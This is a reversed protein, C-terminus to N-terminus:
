LTQVGGQSYPPFFALAGFFCRPLCIQSCGQQGFHLADHMKRAPCDYPSPSPGSDGLLGDSCQSFAQAKVISANAPVMTAVGDSWMCSSGSADENYACCWSDSGAPAAKSCWMACSSLSIHQDESAITLASDACGQMMPMGQQAAMVESIPEVLASSPWDGCFVVRSAWGLGSSHPRVLETTVIIAAAILAAAAITMWASARSSPM